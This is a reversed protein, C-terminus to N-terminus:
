RWGRTCTCAASVGPTRRVHVETAELSPCLALVKGGAECPGQTVTRCVAGLVSLFVVTLSDVKKGGVRTHRPTRAIVHDM